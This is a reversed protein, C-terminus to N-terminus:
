ETSPCTTGVHTLPLDVTPAGYGNGNAHRVSYCGKIWAGNSIQQYGEVDPVQVRARSCTGNECLYNLTVDAAKVEGLLQHNLYVPRSDREADFLMRVFADTRTTQNPIVVADGGPAATLGSTSGRDDGVLNSIVAVAGAVATVCTALATVAFVVKLWTAQKDFFRSLRSADSQSRAM